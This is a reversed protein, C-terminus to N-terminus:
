AHQRRDAPRRAWDIDAFADQGLYGGCHLDSIFHGAFLAPVFRLVIAGVFDRLAACALYEQLLRQRETADKEPFM